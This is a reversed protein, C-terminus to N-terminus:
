IALTYKSTKSASRQHHKPEAFAVIRPARACMSARVQMRNLSIECGDLAECMENPSPVLYAVTM